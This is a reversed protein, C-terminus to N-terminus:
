KEVEAGEENGPAPPLEVDAVGEVDPVEVVPDVAEHEAKLSREAFLVFANVTLVLNTLYNVLPWTALSYSIEVFKSLQSFDAGAEYEINQPANGLTERLHRIADQAEPWLKKGDSLRAAISDCCLVDLLAKGVLVIKSASMAPYTTETGSSKIAMMAELPAYNGNFDMLKKLVPNAAELEQGAEGFLSAGGPLGAELQTRTLVNRPDAVADVVAGVKEWFASPSSFDVANTLLSAAQASRIATESYNGLVSKGLSVYSQLENALDDPMSGGFQLTSNLGDDIQVPSGEREDSSGNATSIVAKLRDRASPLADNLAVVVRDLSEIAQRELVPQSFELETILDNVEELSVLQRTTHPHGAFSELSVGLNLETRELNTTHHRLALKLIALSEMTVGGNENVVETTESIDTINDSMRRAQKVVDEASSAEALAETLEVVEQVTESTDTDPGPAAAPAAEQPESDAPVDTASVDTAEAGDGTLTVDGEPVDEAGATADPIAEGATAEAVADIAVEGVDLDAVDGDVVSTDDVAAVDNPVVPTEGAAEDGAELEAEAPTQIEAAAEVDVAGDDPPTEGEAPPVVDDTAAADPIEEAAANAVEAPEGGAAAAADAAGAAGAAFADANEDTPTEGAEVADSEVKEAAKAAVDDLEQQNLDSEQGQVAQDAAEMSVRRAAALRLLTHSIKSM